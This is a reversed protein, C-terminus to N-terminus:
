FVSAGGSDTVEHSVGLSFKGDSDQRGVSNHDIIFVQKLINFKPHKTISLRFLVMHKM